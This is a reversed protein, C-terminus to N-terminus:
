DDQAPEAPATAELQARVEALKAEIEKARETLTVNDRELAEIRQQLDANESRLETSQQQTQALKAADDAPAPAPTAPTQASLGLPTM